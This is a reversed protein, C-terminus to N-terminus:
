LKRMAKPPTSPPVGLVSSSKRTLLQPPPRPEGKETDCACSRPPPSLAPLSVACGMIRLPNGTGVGMRRAVGRVHKRRARAM